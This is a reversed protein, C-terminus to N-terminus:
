PNFVLAVGHLGRGIRTVRARDGLLRGDAYIATVTGADHSVVVAIGAEVDVHHAGAGAPASFLRTGTTADLVYVTGATHDAIWLRVGGTAVHHPETGLRARYLLRGSRALAAVYPAHWYTVYFRAGDPDAAIDHAAGGARLRRVVRAQSPRETDLVTLTRARPGHTVWVRGGGSGVALDHPGAGVDVRRVVRRTTLSLVAVQGRREDTVYAYRGDPALEVDHPSGFGRIVALIRYSRPDLITVAGAPPSTVVVARKSAAVNHPGPPMRVRALVQGTIPQVVVLRDEAEASVFAVLTGGQPAAVALPVAALAVILLGRLM